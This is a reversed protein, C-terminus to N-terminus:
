ACIKPFILKAKKTNSFIHEKTQSYKNARSLYEWVLGFFSIAGFCKVVTFCLVFAGSALCKFCDVFLWVFIKVEGRVYVPVNLIVGTELVCNWCLNGFNQGGGM